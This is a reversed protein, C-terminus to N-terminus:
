IELAKAVFWVRGAEPLPETMQDISGWCAVEQFGASVLLARIESLSYAREFHDERVETWSGDQRIFGGIRKAAIGRAPDFANVHVEFADARNQVTEVPRSRAIWALGAPTNIDFMFTGARALARRAAAFAAGLDESSMLYNLSDYWCTALDFREGLQFSRMDARVFKVPVGEEAARRRARALMDDSIDIGTVALGARAMSVAFAGEGCAIDLLTAPRLDLRALVSPLFGAIRLGYGPYPGAAYLGSFKEYIAM